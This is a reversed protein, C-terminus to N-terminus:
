RPLNTTFDAKIPYELHVRISGASPDITGKCTFQKVAGAPFEEFLSRPTCKADYPTRNSDILDVDLPCMKDETGDNAVVLAIALEDDRLAADPISLTFPIQTFGDTYGKVQKPEFTLAVPTAVPDSTNGPPPTLCCCGFTIIAVLGILPPRLSSTMLANYPM